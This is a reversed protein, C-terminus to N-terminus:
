YKGFERDSIATKSKSSATGGDNKEAISKNAFKRDSLNELMRLVEPSIEDNKPTNANTNLKFKSVM